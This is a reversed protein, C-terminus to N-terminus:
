HSQQKRLAVCAPCMCDDDFTIDPYPEPNSNDANEGWPDDSMARSIGNLASVLTDVVAVGQSLDRTYQGIIALAAAAVQTRTMTEPAIAIFADVAKQIQDAMNQKEQETM